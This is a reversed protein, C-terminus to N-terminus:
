DPNKRRSREQNLLWIGLIIMAIPLIAGTAWSSRMYPGIYSLRNLVGVGGLAILVWGILRSNRAFSEQSFIGEDRVTEGRSLRGSIQFTDFFSYFWTVPAILVSWLQDFPRGVVGAVFLAGFFFAMIQVGRNMLGLYMQGAGPILGFLFVLFGPKTEGAVARGAGAASGNGSPGAERAHLGEQGASTDDRRIECRTEGRRAGDGSSAGGGSSTSGNLGGAGQDNSNAPVGSIREDEM